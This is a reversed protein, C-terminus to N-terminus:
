TLSIDFDEEKVDPKIIGTAIMEQVVRNADEPTYPPAIKLSNAIELSKEAREIEQRVEDPLKEYVEAKTIAAIFSNQYEGYDQLSSSFFKVKWYPSQTIRAAKQSLDQSVVM